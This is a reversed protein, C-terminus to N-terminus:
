LDVKEISPIIVGVMLRQASILFSPSDDTALIRLRSALSTKTETKLLGNKFDAKLLEAVAQASDVLQVNPGVVKRIGSSLAPYHTCGLILTDIQNQLVPTLYRYLILNTIPDDELGEEVLPVLLPCAQQFVKAEANEATIARLYASARVTASTGLVGIRKSESLKVALSAGPQIVNYIPITFAARVALSPDLLVTSASNCAVVIAKVNTKKLFEINQLLYKEITEPSKTGYPLRATDGLYIFNENPFEQYLTRLVTLGGIGSDFLGIAETSGSTM